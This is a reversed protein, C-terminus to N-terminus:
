MQANYWALYIVDTPVDPQIYTGGYPFSSTSTQGFAYLLIAYMLGHM